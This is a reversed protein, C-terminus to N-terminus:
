LDGCEQAPFGEEGLTKRYAQIRGVINQAEPDQAMLKEIILNLSRRLEQIELEIEDREM